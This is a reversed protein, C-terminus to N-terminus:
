EWASAPKSKPAKDPNPLDPVRAVALGGQRAFNSVQTASAGYGQLKEVEAASYQAKKLDEENLGRLGAVAVVRSPDSKSTAAGVVSGVGAGGSVGGTGARVSLLRVWGASKGSRVQVWGGRKALVEVVAGRKASGAAAASAVPQARLTEDRLLTGSAALAQTAAALLSAAILWPLHKM